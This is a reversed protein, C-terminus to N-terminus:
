PSNHMEYLTFLTSFIKDSSPALFLFFYIKKEIVMKFFPNKKHYKNIDNLQKFIKNFVSM